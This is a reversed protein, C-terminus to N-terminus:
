LRMNAEGTRSASIRPTVAEPANSAAQPPLLPAADGVEPPDEAPVAEVEANWDHRAL